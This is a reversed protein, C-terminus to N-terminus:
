RKYNNAIQIREDLTTPKAGTETKESPLQVLDSGKIKNGGLANYIAAMIERTHRWKDEEKLQFGEMYNSWERMDMEWFEAPKLGARASQVLLTDFTM